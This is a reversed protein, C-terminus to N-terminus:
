GKSWANRWLSHPIARRICVIVHDVPGPIDSLNKYVPLRRAQGGDPHVAYAKGKFGNNILPEFFLMGPNLMNNSVGIVAISGPDFIHGLKVSNEHDGNQTEREHLSTIDKM